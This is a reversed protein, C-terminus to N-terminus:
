KFGFKYGFRKEGAVRVFGDENVNALLKGNHDRLLWNNGTQSSKEEDPYPLEGVDGRDRLFCIYKYQAMEYNISSM